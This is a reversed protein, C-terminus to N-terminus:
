MSQSQVLLTLLVTHLLSLIHPSQGGFADVCSRILSYKEAGPLTSSAGESISYPTDIVLGSTRATMM